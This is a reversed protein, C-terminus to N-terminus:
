DAVIESLRVTRNEQISRYAAFVARLTSLNDRGSILPEEDQEIAVILAAMTASFADPFWRRTFSPVEWTTEGRRQIALTSERQHPWGIEGRISADTGQIRYTIGFDTSWNTGDDLGSAWFGDEYKLIYQAITEGHFEGPTNRGVAVVADPDGFLMRMQDIHHVSLNLIMLERYRPDRLYQQWLNMVATNITAVLRTGLIGDSILSRAANMSPDFRGNQNVALKVGASEAATVMAVAERYSVALPKQALVHKGAAVARYVIEPQYDPPVAIDVIDVDPDDLLADLSDHVRAINHRKAV